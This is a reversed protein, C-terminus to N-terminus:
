SANRVAVLIVLEILRRGLKPNQRYYNVLRDAPEAIDPAHILVSFPGTLTNRPRSRLFDDHLQQQRANLNERKVEDIRAM